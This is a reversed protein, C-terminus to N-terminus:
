FTLGPCRSYLAHARKAWRRIVPLAALIIPRSGHTRKLALGAGGCRIGAVPPRAAATSKLPMTRSDPWLRLQGKGAHLARSTAPRLSCYRWGDAGQRASLVTEIELGGANGGSGPWTEPRMGSHSSGSGGHPAGRGQTRAPDAAAATDTTPISDTDITMGNGHLLSTAVGPKRSAAEPVTPVAPRRSRKAGVVELCLGPHRDQLLCGNTGCRDYPRDTTTEGTKTCVFEVVGDDSEREIWGRPLKPLEQNASARRVVSPPVTGNVDM